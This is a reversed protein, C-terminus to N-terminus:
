QLPGFLYANYEAETGEWIYPYTRLTRNDFSSKPQPQIKHIDEYRIIELFYTSLSSIHQKISFNPSQQRHWAKHPLDLFCFFYYISFLKNTSAAVISSSHTMKPVCCM